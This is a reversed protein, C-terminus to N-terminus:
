KKSIDIQEIDSFPSKQKFSNINRIRFYYEGPAKFELDMELEKNEGKHIVETFEKDKAIEYEFTSGSKKYNDMEWKIEAKIIEGETNLTEIDVDDIKPVPLFVGKDSFLITDMDAKLIKSYLTIYHSEVNALPLAISNKKLSYFKGAYEIKLARGFNTIGIKLILLPEDNKKILHLTVPWIASNNLERVSFERKFSYRSKKGEYFNTEVIYKGKPFEALPEIKVKKKTITQVRKLGSKNVGPEILPFAEGKIYYYRKKTVFQNDLDKSSLITFEKDDLIEDGRVLELRYKGPEDLKIPAINNDTLEIKEHIVIDKKLARM